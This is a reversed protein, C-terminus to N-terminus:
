RKWTSPFFLILIPFLELRGALMDFMLVLKSVPAYFAFNRSPGVLSFGPGTNNITAAVASFNTTFSECDLSLILFSLVYIVVYCVLFIMSNNVVSAHLKKGDLRVLGIEKPHVISRILRRSSKLFILVRSVKIGGGTSGGCAGICMIVFIVARSFGPWQDFDCSSFGTSTMMSSVQFASQQLSELPAGGQRRCLNAAIFLTAVAMIGIYWRIEEMRLADRFRRQVLLFFFTFNAGFLAMFITIVVQSYVSYGGISTNQTGFGGTSATAFAHCISDFLPMDGLVLLLILIATMGIYILYLSRATEKLHPVLKSVSPGPSEAQMMSFASSGGLLPVLAMLFVLVGMGGIWHTCARWLLGAHSMGEVNNLITAGTTTFGSIMEFVADEYFSIEGSLVYPVAALLPLIIWALAVSVYGERTYFRKNKAKLRTLLLGAAVCVGAMLLYSLGARERYIGGCAAPLLLMMGEAGIIWGLINLITIYNM